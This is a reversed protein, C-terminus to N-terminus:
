NGKDNSLIKMGEKSKEFMRKRGHDDYIEMDYSDCEIAHMSWIHRVNPM